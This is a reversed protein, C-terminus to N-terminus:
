AFNSNWLTMIIHNMIILCINFHVTTPDEKKLNMSFCADAKMDCLGPNSQQQYQVNNYNSQSISANKM